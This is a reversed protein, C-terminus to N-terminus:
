TVFSSVSILNRDKDIINCGQPIVIISASSPLIRFSYAFQVRLFLLLTLPYLSFVLLSFLSCMTLFGLFPLPSFRFDGKLYCGGPQEFLCHEIKTSSSILIFFIGLICSLFIGFLLSCNLFHM